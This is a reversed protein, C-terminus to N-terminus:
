KNKQKTISSPYMGALLVRYFGVYIPRAMRSVDKKRSMYWNYIYPTPLLNLPCPLFRGRDFYMMWM